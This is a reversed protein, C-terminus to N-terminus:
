IIGHQSYASVNKFFGLAKVKRTLCDLQITKLQKVRFTFANHERVNSTIKNWNIHCFM